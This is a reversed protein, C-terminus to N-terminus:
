SNTVVGSDVRVKEAVPDANEILKWDNGDQVALTQTDGVEIKVAQIVYNSTGTGIDITAAAETGYNYIRFKVAGSTANTGTNASPFTATLNTITDDFMVTLTVQKGVLASTMYRSFRQMFYGYKTTDYVQLTIGDSVITMTGNQIHWGDIAFVSATSTSRYFSNQRSNSPNTFDWNCVFNYNAAVGGGSVSVVVENNATTDYTGNQSVSLSTQAALVYSGADEVVVKGEDESTLEIGTEITEIAAAMESPLYLTEVDLKGRIAEAIDYYNQEDTIIKTM